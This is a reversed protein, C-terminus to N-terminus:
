TKLKERERKMMFIRGNKLSPDFHYRDGVKSIAVGTLPKDKISKLEKTLYILEQLPNM